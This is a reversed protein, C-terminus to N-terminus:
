KESGNGLVGLLHDSTQVPEGPQKLAIKELKTKLRKAGTFDSVTELWDLRYLAQEDDIIVPQGEATARELAFARDVEILLPDIWLGWDHDLYFHNAVGEGSSVPFKWYERVISIYM